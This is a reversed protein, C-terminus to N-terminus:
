EVLRLQSLKMAIERFALKLEDGDGALYHHTEVDTACHELTNIANPDTLQFGITYVTLGSGKMNDCISEAQENSNGNSGSYWTNYEGDTMLIAVKLTKEAGFSAANNETSPWVGNWNPSLLYYAWATGLHGATAGSAPLANINANLETKNPTLPVIKASPGCGNNTLYPMYTGVGPGTDTFADIGSREYVCKANPNGTVEEAFEEPLKVLNSFPALAVRSTFENQNEPVVINVLDKAATKLDNIKSGGMSGTVDLMIALELDNYGSGGGIQAGSSAGVDISSVQLVKMFSTEVLSIAQATVKNTAVDIVVDGQSFNIQGNLTGNQIAAQVMDYAKTSALNADGSSQYARGAALVAADLIAQLKTRENLAMGYDVSAGVVSVLPVLAAAFLMAVNGQREEHFEWYRRRFAKAAASLKAVTRNRKPGNDRAPHNHQM